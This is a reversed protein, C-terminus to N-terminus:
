DSRGSKIKQEHLFATLEKTFNDLTGISSKMVGLIKKLEEKKMEDSALDDLDLLNSVGMIHTIPQRVKHSTMFLMEELGSIYDRKDREMRKRETIDVSLIFLGPPVPQVRLEFWASAGNPFVFENDLQASVRNQMCHQLTRFMDTHEIGPYVDMMRRGLLEEGPLRSQRIVTDNVYLYRWDSDILQFGEMLHDFTSEDLHGTM